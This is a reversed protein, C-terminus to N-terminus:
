KRKHTSILDSGYDEPREEEEDGTYIHRNDLNLVEKIKEEHMKPLDFSVPKSQLVQFDELAEIQKKEFVDGIQLFYCNYCLFQLNELRWNRKNGDIYNVLLPVKEDIPRKDKFGCRSCEEKMYGEAILRAKIEKISVFKTSAQGELIDMLVEGRSKRNSYKPIGAAPKNCHIDYLTRGEDTRYRSAVKKYTKDSIGLYRAAGKNSKSNRIAREVDSRDISLSVSNRFGRSKKQM